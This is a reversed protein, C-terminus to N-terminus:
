EPDVSPGPGGHALPFAIAMVFCLGSYRRILGLLFLPFFAKAYGALAPMFVETYSALIPIDGSLLAALMALVPALILVSIGRYALYMLLALSLIIGAVGLM